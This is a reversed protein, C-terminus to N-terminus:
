AAGGQNVNEERTYQCRIRHLQSLFALLVVGIATVHQHLSRLHWTRSRAIACMNCAHARAAKHASSCTSMYDFTSVYDFTNCPLVTQFTVFLRLSVRSPFFCLSLLFRLFVGFLFALRVVCVLLLTRLGEGSQTSHEQNRRKPRTVCTCAQVGSQTSHILVSFRLLSASLM